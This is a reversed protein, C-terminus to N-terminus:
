GNGLPAASGVVHGGNREKIGVQPPVSIKHMCRIYPRTGGRGAVFSFAGKTFCSPAKGPALRM